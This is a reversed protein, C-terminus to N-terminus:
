NIILLLLLTVRSYCLIERFICFSFIHLYMNRKKHWLSMWFRSTNGPWPASTFHTSQCGVFPKTTDPLLSLWCGILNQSGFVPCLKAVSYTLTTASTLRQRQLFKELWSNWTAFSYVIKEHLFLWSALQDDLLKVWFEWEYVTEELKNVSQKVM